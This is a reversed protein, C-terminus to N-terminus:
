SIVKKKEIQTFTLFASLCNFIMESAQFVLGHIATPHACSYYINNCPQPRRGTEVSVKAKRSIKYPNTEM